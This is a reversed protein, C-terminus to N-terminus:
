GGPNFTRIVNDIMQDACTFPEKDNDSCMARLTVLTPLILQMRGQQCEQLAEEPRLWRTQIAEYDEHSLEQEQPARAIFFRTDYRRPNDPPTVWRSIYHLKNAALTLGQEEILTQWCLEGNLLRHRWTDRQAQSTTEKVMLLGAEEFAERLAAVWFALASTQIPARAEHPMVQDANYPSSARALDLTAFAHQECADPMLTQWVPDSDNSDLKGGPFVWAGGVFVAEPNRQQMLVQPGQEHDRVLVLTAAPEILVTETM